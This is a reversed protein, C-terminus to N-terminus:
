LTAGCQWFCMNCVTPTASVQGSGPLPPTACGGLLTPLTGGAGLAASIKLFDRRNM